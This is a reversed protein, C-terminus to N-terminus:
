CCIVMSGEEDYDSDELADTSLTAARNSTYKLLYKLDKNRDFTEFASMLAKNVQKYKRTAVCTTQGLRTLNCESECNSAEECLVDVLKWLSPKM